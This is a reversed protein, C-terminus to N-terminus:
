PSASLISISTSPRPSISFRRPAQTKSVLSVGERQAHIQEVIADIDAESLREDELSSILMDGSASLLYWGKTNAAKDLLTLENRLAPYLTSDGALFTQSNRNNTILYPLHYFRHLTRRVDGIYDLFRQQSQEISQASQWQRVLEKGAWQSLLFWMLIAFILLVKARM